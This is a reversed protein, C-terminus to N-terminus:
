HSAFGVSAAVGRVTEASKLLADREADSLRLPVLDGAGRRSV